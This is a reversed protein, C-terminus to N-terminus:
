AMKGRESLGVFRVWSQSTRCFSELYRFTRQSSLRSVDLPLFQDFLRNGQRLGVDFTNFTFLDQQPNKTRRM